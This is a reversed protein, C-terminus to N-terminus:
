ISWRLAWRMRRWHCCVVVAYVFIPFVTVFPIEAQQDVPLHSNAVVSAVIAFIFSVMGLWSLQWLAFASFLNAAGFCFVWYAFWGPRQNGPDGVASVVIELVGFLAQFAALTAISTPREM